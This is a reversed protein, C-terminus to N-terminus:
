GNSIGMILRQQGMQRVDLLNPHFDPVRGDNGRRRSALIFFGPQLMRWHEAAHPLTGSAVSTDLVLPGEVGDPIQLGKLNLQPADFSPFYMDEHLKDKAITFGAGINVIKGQKDGEKCNEDWRIKVRPPEDLILTLRVETGCHPCPFTVPQELEHGVQIRGTVSSACALCTIWTRSIM